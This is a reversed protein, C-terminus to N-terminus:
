FEEEPEELRILSFYVKVGIRAEVFLDNGNFVPFAEFDPDSPEPRDDENASFVYHAHAEGLLSISPSLPHEYGLLGNVGPDFVGIKGSAIDEPVEPHRQERGSIKFVWYYLGAGAGVYLFRESSPNLRRIFTITTPSVLKVPEPSSINESNPSKEAPYGVWGVGSEIRIAWSASPSYEVHGGFALRPQANERSDEDAFYTLGGGSAALAGDGVRDFAHAPGPHLATGSATVAMVVAVASLRSAM